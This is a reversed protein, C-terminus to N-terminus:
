DDILGERTAIASAELKSHAGLKTLISQVHNRVTHVSLVLRGAIEANNLGEVISRLVQRERDTLDAGVGTHRSSLRALLKRLLAPTILAEGAAALRVAHRVEALDATKLLFGACGADIASLLVHEGESATVMVVAARPVAERIATIGRTGTTDPLRYDLLVVDVPRSSAVNLGDALTSTAAVVEIDEEVGLADALAQAFLVHDDVILVRIASTM